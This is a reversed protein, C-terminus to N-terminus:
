GIGGKLAVESLHDGRIVKSSKQSGRGMDENELWIQAGERGGCGESDKWFKLRDGRKPEWNRIIGEKKREFIFHDGRFDEARGGLRYIIVPGKDTGSM